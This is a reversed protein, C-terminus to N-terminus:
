ASAATVTWLSGLTPQPGTLHAVQLRYSVLAAVSRKFVPMFHDVKPRQSLLAVSVVFPVPQRLQACATHTVGHQRHQSMTMAPLLDWPTLM